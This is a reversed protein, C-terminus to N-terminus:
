HTSAHMLAPAVYSLGGKKSKMAPVVNNNNQSAMITVCCWCLTWPGLDVCVGPSFNMDLAVVTLIFNHLVVLDDHHTKILVKLLFLSWGWNM